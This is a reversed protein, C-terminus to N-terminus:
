LHLGQAMLVHLRSVQLSRSRALQILRLRLSLPMTTSLSRSVTFLNSLRTSIEKLDHGHEQIGGQVLLLRSSDKLLTEPQRADLKIAPLKCEAPQFCLFCCLLSGVQVKDCSGALAASSSAHAVEHLKDQHKAVAAAEAEACDAGNGPSQAEGQVGSATMCVYIFSMSDPLKCLLQSWQIYSGNVEDVMDEAQPIPEQDQGSKRRKRPPSGQM